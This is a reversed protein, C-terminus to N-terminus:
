IGFKPPTRISSTTTRFFDPGRRSVLDGRSEQMIEYAGEIDGSGLLVGLNNIIKRHRARNEVGLLFDLTEIYLDAHPLTKHGYMVAARLMTSKFSELKDSVREALCKGSIYVIPPDHTAWGGRAALAGILHADYIAIAAKGYSASGLQERRISGLVLEWDINSEVLLEEGNKIIDAAIRSRGDNRWRLESYQQVQERSTKVSIYPVDLIRTPDGERPIM